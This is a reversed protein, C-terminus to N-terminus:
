PTDNILVRVAYNTTLTVIDPKKDGNVDAVIVKGNFAAADFVLPSYFVGNGKGILVSVSTGGVVIDLNKDGNIDALVLHYPDIGAPYAIPTHFTGDGKGGAVCVDGNGYNALAFDIKGDGNLDGLGVALPRQDAETPIEPLFTGDGRGLMVSLLGAGQRRTSAPASLTKGFGDNLTVLDPKGDDNIDAHAITTPTQETVFRTPRVFAGNGSGELLRVTGGSVDAIALDLKGDRNYDNIALGRGLFNMTLLSTLGLTGDGQGLLVQTAGVVSVSHAGMSSTRGHDSIAVDLKGDANIDASYLDIYDTAAFPFENTGAFTGDGNGLMMRLAIPLKVGVVLDLKNDNNFDGVIVETPRDTDLVVQAKAFHPRLLEPPPGADVAPICIPVVKEQVGPMPEDVQTSDECGSYLLCTFISGLGTAILRRKQTFLM